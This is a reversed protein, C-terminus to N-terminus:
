LTERIISKYVAVTESVMREEVFLSTAFAYADEAYQKMLAPNGIALSLKAVLDDVSKPDFLLGAKGYQLVEPIAGATSAVVPVKQLMAELLVLGLGEWLSPLCFLDFCSILEPGNPQYGLFQVNALKKRIVQYELAPGLYGGGVIVCHVHPLREMADILLEINKQPQLRGMFGIVFKNTPINAAKRIEFTNKEKLAPQKMGYYVTTIKEPPVGAVQILHERVANSIAIYRLNFNDLIQLQRQWVPQAYFPENNHVSSMTM